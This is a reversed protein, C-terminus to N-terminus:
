NTFKEHIQTALQTLFISAVLEWNIWQVIFLNVLDSRLWDKSSFGVKMGKSKVFNIVETAKKTIYDM